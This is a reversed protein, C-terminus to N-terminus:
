AGEDEPRGASDIAAALYDGAAAVARRAEPVLRALLHWGHVMEPWTQLDVDNGAARMAAGLRNADDLLLDRTGVQILTAPLREFSGFVPSAYATRREGITPAYCSAALRLNEETLLDRGRNSVVSSGGLTLDAWPYLLALALPLPAGDDRARMATALALGAGASEGVVVVRERGYSTVVGDLAAAADDVAAPFPFEPALRYDVSIIDFGHRLVWASYLRASSPSGCVYAGGHFHLVVRDARSGGRYLVAPIGGVTTTQTNVGRALRLVREIRAMDARQRGMDLDGKPPKTLRVLAGQVLAARLSM